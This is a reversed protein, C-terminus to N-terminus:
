LSQTARGPGELLGMKHQFIGAISRARDKVEHARTGEFLEDVTEQFLKLWQEFHAAHIKLDVHKSFPNGQYSMEGFLMSSWFNYMTPMHKPWDLQSFIPALLADARVKEYFGDVLRIVDDRDNIDKLTM